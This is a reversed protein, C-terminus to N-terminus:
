PTTAPAPCRLWGPRRLVSAVADAAVAHGRDTWHGDYTFYPKPGGGGFAASLVGTLDLFEVSERRAIEALKQMVQRRDWAADDAGYLVKTLEWTRDDVEMRSPVGVILLRAGAQAVDTALGHLIAGTKAWADEILPERRREYVRLELRLPVQPM